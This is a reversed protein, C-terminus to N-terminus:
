EKVEFTSTEFLATIAKIMYDVDVRAATEVSSHMALQPLGIDVTKVPVVTNSISGLTSGGPMDPRNYYNMVPVGARACVLRFIAESVADTAYRQNANHKIVVGGGLVPANKADALEPHNPHLAHANDISAMFGKALRKVLEVRGGAVRLLVDSMFASAAGQKTSSGVEENDFVALVPCCEADNAEVFAVASAYVAALDDLRPALVLENELGFYVPEDKAYLLLDHALINKAAAGSASAVLSLFDPKTAALSALPILDRAPDLKCSENVGRNMHIAVSPIVVTKGIDVLVSRVGDGDKLLVRGAVGLPRDLWTYHIMGGYKETNLRVYAGSEASKVKFAPSDDHSAAIVFPGKRNRFAILSTGNRVTFYAGGEALEWDEGECLETFGAESLMDRLVAIAHYPTTSKKIFDLFKDKM